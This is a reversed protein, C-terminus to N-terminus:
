VWGQFPHCPVNGSLDTQTCGKQPTKTERGSPGRTNENGTFQKERRKVRRLVHQQRQIAKLLEEDEAAPLLTSLHGERSPNECM